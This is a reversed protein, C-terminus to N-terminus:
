FLVNFRADPVFTLPALNRFGSLALQEIVIPAAGATDQV